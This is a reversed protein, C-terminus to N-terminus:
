YALGSVHALELLHSLLGHTFELSSTDLQWGERLCEGAESPAISRHLM